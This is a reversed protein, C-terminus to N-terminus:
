ELYLVELIKLDCPCVSECLFSQDQVDFIPRASEWYQHCISALNGLNADDLIYANFWLLNQNTEHKLLTFGNELHLKPRWLDVYLDNDPIVFSGYLRSSYSNFDKARAEELALELERKFPPFVKYLTNPEYFRNPIIQRIIMSRLTSQVKHWVFVISNVISSKEFRFSVQRIRMTQTIQCIAM